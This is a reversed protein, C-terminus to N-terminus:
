FLDEDLSENCDFEGLRKEAYECQQKSIESGMYHCGRKLCAVGTTGTGMFPDYVVCDKGCVYMDMLKLCFESSFTAKNYECPGDNNAAEVFNQIPVYYSQGKCSVSSVKKNMKFTTFESKRVFVFDDECIRTLKNPTGPMPLACKKKWIIKDAFCFPTNKIIDNITFWQTQAYEWGSKFDSGYSINWLIVGNEALVKDFMNFIDVIWKSYEEPTKDDSYVDDMYKTAYQRQSVSANRKYKSSGAGINYPPSSLIVDVKINNEEMQEMTKICDENFIKDIM